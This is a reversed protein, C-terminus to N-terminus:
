RPMRGLQFKSKGKVKCETCRLKPELHRLYQNGMSKLLQYRNIENFHGCAKCEAALIHWQMLTDLSYGDFEVWEEPKGEPFLEIFQRKRM